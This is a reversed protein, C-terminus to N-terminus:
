APTFLSAPKCVSPMPLGQPRGRRHGDDDFRFRDAIRAAAARRRAARDRSLRIRRASRRAAQVDTFGKLGTFIRLEGSIRHRLERAPSSTKAARSFKRAGGDDHHRPDDCRRHDAASLAPMSNISAGGYPCAIQRVASVATKSVRWWTHAVSMM